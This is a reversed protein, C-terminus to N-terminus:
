KVNYHINPNNQCLTCRIAYKEAAEYTTFETPFTENANTKRNTAIVTFM